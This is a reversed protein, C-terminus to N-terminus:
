RGGESAMRDLYRDVWDAVEAESPEAPLPDVTLADLVLDSLVAQSAAQPSQAETLAPAPPPALPAVSFGPAPQIRRLFARDSYYTIKEGRIPAMGARLVILQHRPLQILEQPLMLARRQDSQTQSRRGSSLGSPRSLARGEYTYFGLRESLEQAVKLEKPAFVVEVGCNSIIEEAIDAGYLARLQAPSQIVPMLRLRYGAIYSFSQALVNAVGLRAFEDLLVLVEHDEPGPLTRANHDILQQFLLNYLPAVRTLNDPSVGLYLSIRDQRLRTLDFDSVVTAADVNPNLWLNMRATITQKISAFTNESASCFDNVASICGGSLVGGEAQLTKMRAPLQDRAGSQTLVRYVEGLSFPREPTAAILAGVGIFGTRAAEAWFPDAHTPMPFLMVAIKQLEDLVLTADTRDIHGLPNYRATRREPDLPDFLITKQGHAARFGATALWNERKIDLVVVSDPWNLLNPIVVGVGKGSRTPAYVLVHEPGGFSLIRGGKRGLILGKSTRMGAARIDTERAWHAAGFLPRRLGGIVGMALGSACTLVSLGGIATWRQVLPNARYRWFWFPAQILNTHTSLRHLGALAITLAGLAATAM